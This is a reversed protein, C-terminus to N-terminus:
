GHKEASRKALFEVWQFDLDTDIDYSREEPMLYLRTDPLIVRAASFLVDRKWVYISANMDYCPPSDQRRSITSDKVLEVSGTETEEVMNFYPSRRSTCGTIVNSCSGRELLSVASLVDSILRLPSTVDLDVVTDFRNGFFEEARQACHQIASLKSITDTALEKPREVLCDIGEKRALELIDQSDTSVAIVDFLRSEQAHHITRVVLPQGLFLRTNKGSIGKSGARACITCVRSLPKM